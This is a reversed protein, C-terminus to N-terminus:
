RSINIYCFMGSTKENTNLHITHTQPISKPNVQFNKLFFYYQELGAKGRKLDDESLDIFDTTIFENDIRNALIDFFKKIDIHSYHGRRIDVEFFEFIDEKLIHRLFLNYLRKLHTIISDVSAKRYGVDYLYQRYYNTMPVNIFYTPDDETMKIKRGESRRTNDIRWRIFRCYTKFATIWIDKPIDDYNIDPNLLMDYQLDDITKTHALLQEYADEIKTIRLKPNPRCPYSFASKLKDFLSDDEDYLSSMATRISSVYSKATAVSLGENGVCWMKFHETDYPVEKEGLRSWLPYKRQRAM